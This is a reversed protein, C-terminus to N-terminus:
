DFKHAILMDRRSQFYRTRIETCPAKRRAPIYTLGSTQGARVRVRETLTGGSGSWQVTCEKAVSFCLVVSPFRRLLRWDIPYRVDLVGCYVNIM